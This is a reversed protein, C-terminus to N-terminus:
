PADGDLAMATRRALCAVEGVGIRCQAGERCATAEQRTGRWGWTCVAKERWPTGRGKIKGEAKAQRKRELGRRGPSAIRGGALAQWAVPMAREPCAAQVPFSRVPPQAVHTACACARWACRCQAACRFSGGIRVGSRVVVRLSDASRM